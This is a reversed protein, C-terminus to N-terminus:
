IIRSKPSYVPARAHPIDARESLPVNITESLIGLAM